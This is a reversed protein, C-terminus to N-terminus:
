VSVEALTAALGFSTRSPGDTRSRPSLRAVAGAREDEIVQGAFARAVAEAECGINFELRFVTGGPLLSLRFVSPQIHEHDLWTRIQTM